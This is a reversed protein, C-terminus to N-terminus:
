VMIGLRACARSPDRVFRAFRHFLRNVAAEDFDLSLFIRFLNREIRRLDRDFRRIELFIVADGRQLAEISTSLETQENTFARSAARRPFYPPLVAYRRSQAKPWPGNPCRGVSFPQCGTSAEVSRQETLDAAAEDFVAGSRRQLDPVPRGDSSFRSQRV